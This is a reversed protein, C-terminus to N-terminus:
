APERLRADQSPPVGYQRRYERSFQSASDYGVRHAVTAIDRPQAALLLRAEQLRVQKQFQIPSLATVTQFHRYFGSPSMGSLKALDEVRFQEAYNERIWRAARTIHNLSSDALGLQRVAAGQDGTILRWHIERKLMPALVAQDRPRELLRVLRALSDVLEDTLKGVAIGPVPGSQPRPLDGPGAHLLLDAILAPELVVAMGLAPESVTADVFHGTVPLDVSAVLYDGPRYLHVREGVALRKAGEVLVALVVGSMSPSPPGSQEIRAIHLGDIATRDDPRVHKRLLARLEDM